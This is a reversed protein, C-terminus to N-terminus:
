STRTQDRTSKDLRDTFRQFNDKTVVTRSAGTDLIAAEAREVLLARECDDGDRSRGWCQCLYVLRERLSAVHTRTKPSPKSCVLYEHQGPFMLETQVRTLRTAASSTALSAMMEELSKTNAPLNPELEMATGHLDEDNVSM